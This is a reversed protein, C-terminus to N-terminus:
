VYSAFTITGPVLLQAPTAQVNGAPLTMEVSSGTAQLIGDELRSADLLGGTSIGTFFTNIASTVLARAAVTDPNLAVTVPVPQYAGAVVVAQATVPRRADIYAQIQAVQPTTAVLPEGGAPNPMAVIVGVSGPGVWSPVIDIAVAGADEAWEIYDASSGAGGRQRIRTLIRGRWLEFDEIPAGGALGESDVTVQQLQLGEVPSIITLVTGPPQNGAVGSAEATVGVGVTGGSGITAAAGTIWQTGSGDNAVIEIEAPLPLNPPGSFIVNGIAFTPLIRPVGWLDAHRQLWDYATDPMLEDALTRQYLYAQFGVQGHTRAMVGMGTNTSHADAGPFATELATSYEGAIDAPQPLPWSM